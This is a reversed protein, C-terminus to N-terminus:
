NSLCRSSSHYPLTQPREAMGDSRFRNSPDIDSTLHSSCEAPNQTQETDCSADDFTKPVAYGALIEFDDTFQRNVPVTARSGGPESQFGTAQHGM